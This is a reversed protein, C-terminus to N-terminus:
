QEALSCLAYETHTVSTPSSPGRSCMCLHRGRAEVRVGRANCYDIMAHAVERVLDLSIGAGEPRGPGPSVVIAQFGRRRVWSVGVRDNLRVDVRAGLAEFCGGVM